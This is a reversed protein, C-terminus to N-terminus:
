AARMLCFSISNWSSRLFNHYYTVGVEGEMYIYYLILSSDFNMLRSM